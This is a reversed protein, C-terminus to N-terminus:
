KKLPSIKRKQQPNQCFHHASRPKEITSKHHIAPSVGTLQRDNKPISFYAVKDPNIKSSNGNQSNSTSAAETQRRIGAFGLCDILACNGDM